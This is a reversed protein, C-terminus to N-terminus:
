YREGETAQEARRRDSGSGESAKKAHEELLPLYRKLLRSRPRVKSVDWNGPLPEADTYQYAIRWDTFDPSAAWVALYAAPEGPVEGVLLAEMFTLQEAAEYFGHEVQITRPTYRVVRVRMPLGSLYSRTMMWTGSPPPAPPLEGTRGPDNVSTDARAAHAPEQAATAGAAQATSTGQDAPPM